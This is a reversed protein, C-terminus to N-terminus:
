GSSSVKVKGVKASGTALIAPLSGFEEATIPIIGTQPPGTVGSIPDLHLHLNLQTLLSTMVTNFSSYRMVNDTNGSLEIGSPNIVINTSGNPMSNVIDGAQTMITYSGSNHYIGLEGTNINHFEISGDPYQKFRLDNYQQTSLESIGTQLTNVITSYNFNGEIFSPLLYFGQKYYEDFFICWIKVGNVPIFENSISTNDYQNFLPSIWPLFQQDVDKLYPLPRVQIKAKQDTDSISTVECYLLKVSYDIGTM